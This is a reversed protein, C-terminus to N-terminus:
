LRKEFVRENSGPTEKFDTWTLTDDDNLRFSAAGDTFIDENTVLNDEDDLVITFKMGIELSSLAKGVDDYSCSDYIWRVGEHDGTMQTVICNLVNYDDDSHVILLTYEDSVWEGVYAEIEPFYTYDSEQRNFVVTEMPRQDDVWTLQLRSEDGGYTFSGSTGTASPEDIDAAEDSNDRYEGNDYIFSDLACDYRINATFIYADEGEGSYIEVYWSADDPEEEIRMTSTGDSTEWGGLLYPNIEVPKPSATYSGGTSEVIAGGEVKLDWGYMQDCANGTFHWVYVSAEGDGTPDYQVVFEGDVHEESKLVVVSKDQPMDDAMWGQDDDQAPIRIVYSGNEIACQITTSQDGEALAATGCLLLALVTLTCILKKM